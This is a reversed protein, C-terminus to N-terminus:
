STLQERAAGSASPATRTRRTRGLAETARGWCTNRGAGGRGNPGSVRQYAWPPGPLPAPSAGSCKLWFPQLQQQRRSTNTSNNINSFRDRESVFLSGNQFVHGHEPFFQGRESFMAETRFLFLGRELFLSDQESVVFFRDQGQHYHHRHWHHHRHQCPPSRRAM